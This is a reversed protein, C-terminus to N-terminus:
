NLILYVCLAFWAFAIAYGARVLRSKAERRARAKEVEAKLFAGDTMYQHHRIPNYRTM